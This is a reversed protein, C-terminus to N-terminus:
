NEGEDDDETEEKHELIYQAMEYLNFSQVNSCWCVICAILWALSSLSYAYDKRLFHAVTFVAMLVTIVAMLINYTKRKM